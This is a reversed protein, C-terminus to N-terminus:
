ISSRAMPELVSRMWQWIEPFTQSILAVATLLVAPAVMQILSWNVSVHKPDTGVLHSLLENRDLKLYYWTMVCGIAALMVSASLRVLPERSFPFNQAILFLLCASVALGLGLRVIHRFCQRVYLHIEVACLKQEATRRLAPDLPGDQLARQAKTLEPDDKKPQSAWFLEHLGVPKEALPAFILPWEGSWRERLASALDELQRKFGNLILVLKCLRVCWFGGVFFLLMIPFNVPEVFHDPIQM